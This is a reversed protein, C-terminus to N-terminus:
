YVGVEGLPVGKLVTEPRCYGEEWTYAFEYLMEVGVANGDGDSCTGVTVM